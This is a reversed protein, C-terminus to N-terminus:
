PNSSRSSSNWWVMVVFICGCVLALALLVLAIDSQSMLYAWDSGDGLDSHHQLARGGVFGSFAASIAGAFAVATIALRMGNRAVWMM